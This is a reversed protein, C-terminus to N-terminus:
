RLNNLLSDTEIKWNYMALKLREAIRNKSEWFKNWNGQFAIKGNEIIGLKHSM